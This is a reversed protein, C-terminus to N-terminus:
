AAAKGLKARWGPFLADADHPFSEFARAFERHERAFELPDAGAKWCQEAQRLSKAGAAPGDNHGFAGGGATMILNSHGLNKFFGPMRLANMGGSIIPTTPNMGLWEQRYFPGPASDDAIMFAIARDAPEGEMKGFGMTGVHIGSAGQLRAMKALVFGTYGRKSQPSTVAGHGARHYHLFQRPFARRATTVAAPGAVYGDVLFAVHDANPGFTELIFEGRALTERYDDATINFSFLKAQGTEDQARIM